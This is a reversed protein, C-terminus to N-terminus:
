RMEGRGNGARADGGLQHQRRGVIGGQFENAPSPDLDMRDARPLHSHDLEDVPDALMSSPVM